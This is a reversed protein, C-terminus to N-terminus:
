TDIWEYRTYRYKGKQEVLGEAVLKALTNQVRRRNIDKGIRGIIEAIGAEKYKSLDAIVLERLRHPEIEKLTTVTKFKLNQIMEPTIHYIM